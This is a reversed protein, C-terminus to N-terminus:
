WANDEGKLVGTNIGLLQICLDLRDHMTREKWYGRISGWCSSACILDIMVSIMGTRLSCISSTQEWCSKCYMRLSTRESVLCFSSPWSNTRKKWLCSPEINCSVSALNSPLFHTRNQKNTQKSTQQNSHLQPFTCYIQISYSSGLTVNGDSM